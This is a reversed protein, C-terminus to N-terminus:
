RENANVPADAAGTTGPDGDAAERQGHALVEIYEHFKAAADDWQFSRIVHERGARGTERRWRRHLYAYETAETFAEINPLRQDQGFPVTIPPGPEILKGGPGVVEPIASCNQAIVPVECALSEALTLGFGEGRSTSVM